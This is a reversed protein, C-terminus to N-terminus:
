SWVVSVERAPELLIGTLPSHSPAEIKEGGTHRLPRARKGGYCDPFNFAGSKVM